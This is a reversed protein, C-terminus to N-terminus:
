DKLSYLEKELKKLRNNTYFIYIFIIIWVTISVFFMLSLESSLLEDFFDAM